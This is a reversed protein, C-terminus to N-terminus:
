ASHYKVQSIFVAPGHVAVGKLTTQPASCFMLAAGHCVASLCIPHGPLQCFVPYLTKDQARKLKTRSNRVFHGTTSMYHKNGSKMTVASHSKSQNCILRTHRNCHRELRILRVCVGYYRVCHQTVIVCRKIHIVSILNITYHCPHQIRSPSKISVFLLVHNTYFNFNQSSM